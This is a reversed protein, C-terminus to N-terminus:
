KKSFYKDLGRSEKHSQKKSSGPKFGVKKSMAKVPPPCEEPEKMLDEAFHFDQHELRINSLAGQRIDIDAYSLNEPLTFIKGCRSCSYSLDSSQHEARQVDSAADDQHSPETTRAGIDVSMDMEEDRPRKKPSSTSTPKLFGEISKQGQEAVDIGTFALSVHGVNMTAVTGVLEKWLKDGANAIVDVTAQRVFPFPAQKSRGNEYGTGAEYGKRAYLVITKPWLNPNSQRADKLRLALEAALVRIWHHGEAANKIPKPLNKAALMSKNVTQKEKLPPPFFYLMGESRDIGRLVEYVWIAGEGFKHQMEELSITLLDGVTSVEYEKALASGLKGGLFRIKQFPLPRLYPPIAKNRLISQSNPKKYSAALKALFKNRAIGASTTYGMERVKGRAQDMLEAAISLAVDHWTTTYQEEESMDDGINGDFERSSSDAEGISGVEGDVVTQIENGAQGIEIKEDNDREQGGEAGTNAEQKPQSGDLSILHALGLNSWKIRPPIPLPTDVGDPADKPVQALHPYRQLLIEKVAKTYDFFAEDISAKEIEISSPLSERFRTAIKASERRYYDLSVKHTNTDVDKWYGPESDGEKYTAVHVVKLHPCKKLAEKVKTMRTIGYKRAPYNVAILLDWQLVVLPVEKDLNLRVMECAAYFADSDCLAIVRLPDRVGLNNSLVHRYTIVPELDIFEPDILSSPTAKAKGKWPNPRMSATPPM